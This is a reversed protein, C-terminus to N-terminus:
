SNLGRLGKERRRRNIEAFLPGDSRLFGVLQGTSVGLIKAADSISWGARDLVDLVKGMAAPYDSARRSVELIEPKPLDALDVEERVLLAMRHRLRDLATRRNRQQSRSETSIASLGSPKHTLRIASSTKNRKQGGPGPGRFAEVRCDTLLQEDSLGRYSAM